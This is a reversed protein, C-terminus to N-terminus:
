PPRNYTDSVVVKTAAACPPSAAACKARYLAAVAAATAETTVMGVGPLTQVFLGGQLHYFHPFKISNLEHQVMKCNFQAPVYYIIPFWDM